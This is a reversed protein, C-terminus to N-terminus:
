RGHLHRSSAADATKEAENRGRIICRTLRVFRDREIPTFEEALSYKPLTNGAFFDSSRRREPLEQRGEDNNTSDALLQGTFSDGKPQVTIEREKILRVCMEREIKL